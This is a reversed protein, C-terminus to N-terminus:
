QASRLGYRNRMLVDLSVAALLVCGIVISQFYVNVGAIVMVNNLLGMFLAGMFAGAVTGRGGSLSGGGIIVATIVRLEIGTGITGIAANLRSSIICGTIGSLTGMLIFNVLQTRKVNIGSLVAARANGGIFYLQRFYRTRKLVFAFFVVLIIMYFVPMQIGLVTHQGLFLFSEPLAVIGAGAILIAVGRLIGLMALTAILANVGVVAVFFGNILGATSCAAIGGMIAVPVPLGVRKMLLAAVAGGVAVASGVSLDFVGSVILFMMGISLIGEVSLSLFIASFNTFSLFYDNYFISMGICIFFILVFLSLARNNILYVGTERFRFLLKHKEIREQNIGAEQVM